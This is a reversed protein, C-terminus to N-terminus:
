VQGMTEQPAAPPPPSPAGGGGSLLSGIFKAAIDEPKISDKEVQTMQGIKEALTMRSLLDQAREAPPRGADKYLPIADAATTPSPAITSPPTPTPQCAALLVVMLLLRSIPWHKSKM